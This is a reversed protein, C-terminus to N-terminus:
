ILADPITVDTEMLKLIKVRENIEKRVNNM